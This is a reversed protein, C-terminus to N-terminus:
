DRLSNNINIVTQTKKLAKATPLIFPQSIVNKNM